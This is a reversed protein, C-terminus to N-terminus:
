EAVPQHFAGNVVGFLEEPKNYKVKAYIDMTTKSNEHGALYQVTKPDVGAYLLNTIYTHRLQHPTVDFDLTYKIKPQNKQTMGLTPTVTYKISEGNVYKYYNRPKTSRVVVYQWVRQFQSAALPEGKSDAIVYDSISNEKAERLCDVLCKPIPIDRKAAPTKLVTSVVPRNHETRWARRVSLYPTDEDLFVCDWQLALIEERRLGSYLGLMIFLYPPLGKVKAYIDMTIKSSEHGALYQVTKPDVSAHILNTIYTHRLQHPTVEFDLSYVVKGNHAAKEGLVPTVTHKVRKGDEYRYYSREKVTRTVIYQWLRKFQTYSLPEGDRNSVVYESTSTEKAAKLCEVLCVPLPINREAAKTKLEDSIVPRNHETHWARRVTLYPTDTDLYVSDWQLALIEERRLGAYLGIMVFVYPPLDRIADLLREVQEDTLAQRDEQPVGGGKTTLYITPNHDIIRSEMAARFISKYLIVVSKYVSASKKSVPVLALQIDDLSVEGMRKDGLEAIIHRRVKSTYDTLTTARVHVSQMLLWKECYEAVTPTKRHFTANEIQELALTEKNYLEEPTKAYLAVLKGNADKIRTRYYLVGRKMVTGYQPLMIKRNAM